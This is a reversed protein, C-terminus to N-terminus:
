KQTTSMCAMVRGCSGLSSMSAELLYAKGELYSKSVKRLVDEPKRGEPKSVIVSPSMNHTSIYIPQLISLM